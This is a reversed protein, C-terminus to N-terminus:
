REVFIGLLVSAAVFMLLVYTGVQGTTARRTLEGVAASIYGVAAVAGEVITQDLGRYVTRALSLLPRVIVADFLEDVFYKGQFLKELPWAAKRISEKVSPAVAFLLFAGVLGLLGPLSGAAIESVDLRPTEYALSPLAPALYSMLEHNLYWGGFVSLLALFLVPGIMVAPSEYPHGEGRYSGTFTMVFSRGMYVATLVAVGTAIWAIIHAWGMVYPNNMEAVSELIAHKSFFGAFPWVGAIALTAAGYAICTYPMYKSLGGMRRMDQEHHCGHIVSGAGLFLCAKFFAHTVVHFIAISYQGAGVALFM